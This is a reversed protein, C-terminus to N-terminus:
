LVINMESLWKFHNIGYVFLWRGYPKLLELRGTLGLLIVKALDNSTCISFNIPSSITNLMPSFSFTIPRMWAILFLKTSSMVAFSSDM